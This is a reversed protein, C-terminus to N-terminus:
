RWFAAPEPSVIKKSRRHAMYIQLAIFGFVLPPAALLLLIGANLGGILRQGEESKLLSEKCMACQASCSAQVLWGALLVWIATLKRRM